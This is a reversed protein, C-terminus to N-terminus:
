FYQFISVIGFTGKYAENIISDTTYGIKNTPDHGISTFKQSYTM